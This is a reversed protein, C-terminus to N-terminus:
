VCGDVSIAQKKPNLPSNAATAGSQKGGGAGRIWTDEFDLSDPNTEGKFERENSSAVKVTNFPASIRQGLQLLQTLNPSSKILSQLVDNLPRDDKLQESIREQQRKNRLQKLMDDNKLAQDLGDILQDAKPRTDRTDGTWV